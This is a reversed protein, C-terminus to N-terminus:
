YGLKERVNFPLSQGQSNSSGFLGPAIVAKVNGRTVPTGVKREVLEQGVAFYCALVLADTIDKGSTTPHDIKVVLDELRQLEYLLPEHRYWIIRKDKILELFTDFVERHTDASFVTYRYGAKVMIQKFDMSEFSDSCILHINFGFKHHLQFIVERVDGFDIENDPEAVFRTVLDVEIVPLITVYPKGEKNWKTVEISKEPHVLSFGCKDRVGKSLDLGIYYKVGPKGKFFDIKDLRNLLDGPYFPLPRSYGGVEWGIEPVPNIKGNNISELVQTFDKFFPSRASSPIGVVDRLFAIPNRELDEKLEIPVQIEKVVNGSVDTVKYNFTEGSFLFPKVEWIALRHAFGKPNRECEKFREEIFDDVTGATSIGLFLEKGWFRRKMRGILLDYLEKCADRSSTKDFSTMEDFITILLNYGLAPKASSSGPTIYIGKPFQLESKVEPNPIYGKNKFWTCGNVFNSIYGFVVKRAEDGSPACNIIQIRSNLSLNFFRQPERMCLLIYVLYVTVIAVFSSKGSGQGAIIICENYKIWGTKEDLQLFDHLLKRIGPYVTGSINLYDPSDIFTNIDVPKEEWVEDGSAYKKIKEDIIDSLIENLDQIKKKKGNM